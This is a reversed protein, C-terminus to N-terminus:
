GVLESIPPLMRKTVIRQFHNRAEPLLFEGSVTNEGDNGHLSVAYGGNKEVLELLSYATTTDTATGVYCDCPNAFNSWKWNGGIAYVKINM